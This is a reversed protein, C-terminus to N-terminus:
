VPLDGVLDVGAGTATVTRAGAVVPPAYWLSWPEKAWKLMEAPRLYKTSLSACAVRGLNCPGAVNYTIVNYSAGVATVAGGVVTPAITWLQGTTLNRAVGNFLSRTKLISVAVFYSHGAVVGSITWLNTGQAVFQIVPSNGTQIKYQGGNAYNDGVMGQGITFTRAQFIVSITDENMLEGAIVAPIAIGSTVSTGGPVVTPGLANAEYGNGTNSYSINTLLDRVAGGSTAVPAMRLNTYAPHSVNLLPPRAPYAFPNQALALRM